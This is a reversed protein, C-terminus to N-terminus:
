PYVQTCALKQKQATDSRNIYTVSNDSISFEAAVYLPTCSVKGAVVGVSDAAYWSSFNSTDTYAGSYGVTCSAFYSGDSFRVITADIGNRVVATNDIDVSLGCIFEAAMSLGSAGAAGTVGASGAPGQPGAPGTAGTEGKLITVSATAKETGKTINLDYDGDTLDAPLTAKIQTPQNTVYTLKLTKTVTKGQLEVGMGDAFSTGDIILASAFKDAASGDGQISTIALKSPDSQSTSPTLNSATIQDGQGGGGGCGVIMLAAMVVVIRKM